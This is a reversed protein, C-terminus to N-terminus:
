PWRAATAAGQSFGLVTREVAPSNCRRIAEEAVADLYGIYDAIEPEMVFFAGNIWGESAQPKEADTDCYCRVKERFRGGLLYQYHSLVNATPMSLLIPPNQRRPFPITASHLFAPLAALVLALGGVVELVGRVTREAEQRHLERVHEIQRDIRVGGAHAHLASRGHLLVGIGGPEQAVADVGKRVRGAVMLPYM